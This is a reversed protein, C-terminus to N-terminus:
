KTPRRYALFAVGVCLAVVTVSSALVLGESRWTQPLLPILLGTGAGALLVGAALGALLTLTHRM